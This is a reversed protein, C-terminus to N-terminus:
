GNAGNGEFIIIVDKEIGLEQSKGCIRMEGLYVVENKLYVWGICGEDVEEESEDMILRLLSWNRFESENNNGLLSGEKSIKM